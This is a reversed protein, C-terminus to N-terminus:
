DLRGCGDVVRGVRSGVFGEVVDGADVEDVEDPTVPAEAGLTAGM